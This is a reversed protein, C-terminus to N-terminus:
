KGGLGPLNVDLQVTIKWKGNVGEDNFWVPAALLAVDKNFYTYFGVAGGGIANDGSAYDAAVVFRNFTNGAADPIPRFGRDWAVMFGTEEKEGTSSRLLEDNGIYPGASLRGFSGLTKGITLHAVNYDTVGRETGLGFMGVYLAPAGAFLAGEPAGLKFNGSFPYDSPELVDIGVEMQLKQFPLIGVTLGVDTPFDGAGDDADRGVTFYNDVGLHFVGFSQIDPTMNTWITSSSTAHAAGSATALAVLVAAALPTGPRPRRTEPHDKSALRHFL